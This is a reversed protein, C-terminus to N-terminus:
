PLPPPIVVTRARRNRARCSLETCDAALREKGYSISQVSATELGSTELFSKVAVAREAGLTLNYQETGWEDAHGEVLIRYDPHKKLWRVQKWLTVQAEPSLESSDGPFYVVDGAEAAFTESGSPSASADVKAAAQAALGEASGSGAAGLAYERQQPAPGLCASLASSLFLAGLLASARGFGGCLRM